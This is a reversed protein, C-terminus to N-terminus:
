PPRDTRTGPGHTQERLADAVVKAAFGRPSHTIGGNGAAREIQTQALRMGAILQPQSMPGVDDEVRRLETRLWSETLEPNIREWRQAIAPVLEGLQREYRQRNDALPPPPSEERAPAPPILAAAAEERRKEGRKKELGNGFRKEHTEHLTVDGSGRFTGGGIPGSRHKRVRAAVDDSPKQRGHWNHPALVGDVEDVLGARKLDRVVRAGDEDSLRLAFAIDATGPLEGRRESKGALCLLNVWQKFLWPDLRQVKPDDIAGTYFRFWDM